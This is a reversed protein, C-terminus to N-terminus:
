CSTSAYIQEYIELMHKVNDNWDYMELVRKRGNKGLEIAMSNDNILRLLAVAIAEPDEKKVILGTKEHIVVERLGDVNSVVLPRECAMAEVASVGFSESNDISPICIIDMSNIVEPVDEYKIFGPFGADIHLSDSLKELKPKLEGYGYVILKIRVNLISIKKLEREVIPVARVLYEIGYKKKLTKVLGVTIIKDKTFPDKFSKFKDADIGFPTVFIQKNTYKKTEQAMIHSTSALYKANKLNNKILLKHIPSKNPFSYVDSGYISILYNKLFTLSMLTGHGSLQHVHIIDPEIKKILSRLQLFNSIYGLPANYKLRHVKVETSLFHKQNHLTILHLEDAYKVIANAWRTVHISNQPALFVVKM